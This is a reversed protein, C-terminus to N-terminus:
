RFVGKQGKDLGWKFYYNKGGNGICSTCCKQNTSTFLALRRNGCLKCRKTGKPKVVSSRLRWWYLNCLRIFKIWKM